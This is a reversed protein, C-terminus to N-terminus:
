GKAMIEMSECTALQATDERTKGITKVTACNRIIYTKGKLGKKM